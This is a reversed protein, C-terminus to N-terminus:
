KLLIMKKTLVGSDTRMRYFYMGSAVADGRDDTGTWTVEHTGESQIGDALTATRQGLVNFVELTVHSEADLYYSITTAANFPNPYNAALRVGTSEVNRKVDPSVTISKSDVYIKKATFRVATGDAPHGNGSYDNFIIRGIHFDEPWSYSGFFQPLPEVYEVEVVYLRDGPSWGGSGDDDLVEFQVRRDDSPDGPTNIGLNWVEFPARGPFKGDTTFDYYESGTANFRIEWTEGATSEQRWDLRLFDSGQDSSVYWDGTSNLSYAVNDPPTVPVGGPGTIEVINFDIDTVRAKHASMCDTAGVARGGKLRGGMLVEVLEGNSPSGLAEYLQMRDVEAVLDTVGDPGGRLCDCPNDPVGPSTVDRFRFSKAPVGALDLSEYDLDHVDLEPTGCIAFTVTSSIPDDAQPFLPSSKGLSGTMLTPTVVLVNPCQGPLIDLVVPPSPPEPPIDFHAGYADKAALATERLDTVATLADTGQGVCVAIMVEQSDGPALAFPGACVLYRCDEPNGGYWGTQAVPDGSYMYTTTNGWPDHIPNGFRDLGQMHYYSERANGPDEGNIYKKFATMPLNRRGPFARAFAYATDVDAAPVMPGQLLVFGVAPPAPGYEADGDDNYAYGLGLAPDCGALDDTPYGIDPDAWFAVYADEMFHPGANTITWQMFVVRGLADSRSFGFATNRVEIDLPATSGSNNYHASPDGDNFVSWLTQDGIILPIRHGAADLSDTGDAAKLAPAGDGFPWLAYDINTAPSDGRNIKYVHFSPDDPNAGLRGPVYEDSYESLAVRVAGDVTAGVWLGGAYMTTRNGPWPFYLGSSQGFIGTKDFAFSGTNTTFMLLQNADFYSSYDVIKPLESSPMGDPAAGWLPSAWLLGVAVAALVRVCLVSRRKM